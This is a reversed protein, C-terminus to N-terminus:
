VCSAPPLYWVVPLSASFLATPVLFFSQDNVALRNAASKVICVKVDSFSSRRSFHPLFLCLYHRDIRLLNSSAISFM